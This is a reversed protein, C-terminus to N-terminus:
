GSYQYLSRWETRQRIKIKVPRPVLPSHFRTFGGTTNDGAEM